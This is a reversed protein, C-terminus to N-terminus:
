IQHIWDTYVAVSLSFSSTSLQKVKVANSILNLLMQNVRTPDGHVFKPVDAGMTLMVDIRKSGVLTKATEVMVSILARFDYHVDELILQGADIKGIDLVDNVINIMLKDVFV